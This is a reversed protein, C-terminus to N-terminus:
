PNEPRLGAPDITNYFPITDGAVGIKVTGVIPIDYFMYAVVHFVNGRSNNVKYICYLYSRTDNISSYEVQGGAGGMNNVVYKPCRASNYNTRYGLQSLSSNIEAELKGKNASTYGEDYKEIIDIIRNRVKFAKSYNISSLTLLMIVFMFIIIMSTISANAISEKM